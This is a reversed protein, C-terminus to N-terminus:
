IDSFIKRALSYKGSVCLEYLLIEFNSIESNSNKWDPTKPAEATLYGLREEGCLRLAAFGCGFSPIDRAFACLM